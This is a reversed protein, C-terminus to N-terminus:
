SLKENYVPVYFTNKCSFYQEIQARTYLRKKNCDLASNFHIIKWCTKRICKESLKTSSKIHIIAFQLTNPRQKLIWAGKNFQLENHSVTWCLKEFFYKTIFFCTMKMVEIDQIYISSFYATERPTAKEFLSWPSAHGRM